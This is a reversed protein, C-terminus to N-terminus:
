ASTLILRMLCAHEKTLPNMTKYYHKRLGVAEFGLERYLSLAAHNSQRVELLLANVKKSRLTEIAHALLARGLGQRQASKAVTINLLEWEDVNPMLVCYAQVAQFENLSVVTLYGQATCDKLQALRWPTTHNDQEITNLQQWQADNLADFPQLSANAMANRRM